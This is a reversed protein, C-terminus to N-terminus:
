SHWWDMLLLGLTALLMFAVLTWHGGRNARATKDLQVNARELHGTARVAEAYLREIQETQHSVAASFAQNLAAVERVQTETHRVSGSLEELEAAEPPQRRRRSAAAQELQQRRLARLKDYAATTARLRESLSLVVGVRHAAGDAVTAEALAQLRAINAGCARLLTGVEGELRDGEAETMFSARAYAGKNEKLLRRLARLDDAIEHAAKTFSTRAALSRLLEAARQKELSAGQRTQIEDVLEQFRDTLEIAVM